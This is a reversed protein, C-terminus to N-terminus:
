VVSSSRDCRPLSPLVGRAIMCVPSPDSCASAAVRRSGHTHARFRGGTRTRQRRCRADHATTGAKTKDADAAPAAAAAAAAAPDSMPPLLDTSFSQGLRSASASSAPTTCLRLVDCGIDYCPIPEDVDLRMRM